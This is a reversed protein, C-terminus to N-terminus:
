HPYDQVINQCRILDATRYEVKGPRKFNELKGQRLWRLVNTKGFLAYAKRQSLVPPTEEQQKLLHALEAALDRLFMEYSIIRDGVEIKLTQYTCNM